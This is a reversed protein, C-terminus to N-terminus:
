SSQVAETYPLFVHRQRAMHISGKLRLSQYPCTSFEEGKHIHEVHTNDLYASHQIWPIEKERPTYQIFSLPTPMQAEFFSIM